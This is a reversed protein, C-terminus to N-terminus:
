EIYQGYLNFYRKIDSIYESTPLIFGYKVLKDWRDLLVKDKPNKKPNLKLLASKFSKKVHEPTKASAVFVFGPLPESVKIATFNFNKYSDLITDRVGGAKISKVVVDDLIRELSQYIVFQANGENIGEEELMKKIVAYAATNPKFIGIKQGILDKVSKVDRDATVLKIRFNVEGQENLALLLLEVRCDKLLKYVFMPGIFGVSLENNCLADFMEKPGKLLRLEWRINTHKNLYEVLPSYMLWIREPSQVPIVAFTATEHALVDETDFILTFGALFLLGLLYLLHPSKSKDTRDKKPTLGMVRM